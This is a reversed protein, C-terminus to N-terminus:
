LEYLPEYDINCGVFRSLKIGLIKVGLFSWARASITIITAIIILINVTTITIITAITVIDLRKM